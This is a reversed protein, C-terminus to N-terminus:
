SPSPKGMRTSNKCNKKLNGDSDRVLFYGVDPYPSDKGFTLSYTTEKGPDVTVTTLCTWEKGAKNKWKYTNEASTTSITVYHWDNSPTEFEWTGAVGKFAKAEANSKVLISKAKGDAIEKLQTM